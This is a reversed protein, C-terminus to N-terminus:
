CSNSKQYGITNTHQSAVWASGDYGQVLVLPVQVISQLTWGKVCM